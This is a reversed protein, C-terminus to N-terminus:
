RNGYLNFRTFEIVYWDDISISNLKVKSLIIYYICYIYLIFQTDIKTIQLFHNLFFSIVESISDVVSSISTLNSQTHWRVHHTYNVSCVGRTTLSLYMSYILSQIQIYLVLSPYYYVISKKGFFYKRKRTDFFHWVIKTLIFMKSHHVVDFNNLWRQPFHWFHILPDGYSRM